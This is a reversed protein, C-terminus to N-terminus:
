ASRMTRWGMALILGSTLLAIATASGPLAFVTSEALLPLLLYYLATAAGAIRLWWPWHRSQVFGACFAVGVATTGLALCVYVWARAVSFSATDSLPLASLQGLLSGAFGDAIIFIAIGIAFSIWQVRQGSHAWDPQTLLLAGLLLLIDSLLEIISPADAVPGARLVQALAEELTFNEFIGAQSFDAVVYCAAAAVMGLAGCVVLAGGLRIQMQHENM